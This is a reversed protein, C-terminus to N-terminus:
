NCKHLVEFIIYNNLGLLVIFCLIIYVIYIYNNHTIPKYFIMMNNLKQLLRTNNLTELKLSDMEIIFKDPNDTLINNKKLSDLKNKVSTTNNRFIDISTLNLNSNRKTQKSTRFLLENKLNENM